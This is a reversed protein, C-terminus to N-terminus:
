VASLMEPKIDTKFHRELHPTMLMEKMVGIEIEPKSLMELKPDTKGHRDFQPAM